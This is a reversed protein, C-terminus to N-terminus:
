TGEGRYQPQKPEFGFSERAPDDVTLERPVRRTAEPLSVDGAQVQNSLNSRDENILHKTPMDASHIGDM